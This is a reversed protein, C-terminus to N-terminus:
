ENTAKLFNEILADYRTEDNIRIHSHVGKEFWHIEKRSAACKEFLKQVDAPNSYIDEKSYFFLVPKTMKDICHIPGHTTPNKGSILQVYFMMLEAVPHVMHGQAKIRKVLMDKFHLYVGDATLGELYDPADKCTFANLATAAGICIGHFWVKEVGWEDHLLKAWALLDKYEKMGLTNYRGDSLGHSRNDITLVNYGMEKYPKAFFYSYVCSETRGPVIIVAKRFGFDFYEGALRFKGSKVSVTHQFEANERGWEEGRAFMENQEPEDWSCQRAWKERNTRVLIQRFIRISIILFPLAVFLIFAGIVGLVIYLAIM